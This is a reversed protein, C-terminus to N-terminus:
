LFMSVDMDSEQFTGVESSFLEGTEIIKRGNNEYSRLSTCRLGVITKSMYGYLYLRVAPYINATLYNTSIDRVRKIEYEEIKCAGDNLHQLERFLMELSEFDRIALVTNGDFLSLDFLKFM